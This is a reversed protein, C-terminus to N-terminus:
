LTPGCGPLAVKSIACSGPTGGPVVRDYRYEKVVRGAANVIAPWRAHEARIFEAYAEPSASPAVELGAPTTKVTLPQVYLAEPKPNFILTSYWQSTPAALKAM